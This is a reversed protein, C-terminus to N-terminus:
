SSWPTTMAFRRRLGMSGDDLVDRDPRERRRRSATASSGAATSGQGGNGRGHRRSPCCPAVSGPTSSKLPSRACRCAPPTTPRRVVRPNPFRARRPDLAPALRERGRSRGPSGPTTGVGLLATASVGVAVRRAEDAHETVLRPECRSTEARATSWLRSTVKAQSSPTAILLHSCRGSDLDGTGEHRAFVFCTAAHLRSRPRGFKEDRGKKPGDVEWSAAIIKDPWRAIREGSCKIQIRVPRQWGALPM